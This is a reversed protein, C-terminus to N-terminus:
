AASRASKTRTIGRYGKLALFSVAGKVERFNWHNALVGGKNAGNLWNSWIACSGGSDLLVAQAAGAASLCDAVAKVTGYHHVILLDGTKSLGLAAHYGEPRRLSPDNLAEDIAACWTKWTAQAVVAPFQAALPGANRPSHRRPFNAYIEDLQQSKGAIFGFLHGLDYDLHAYRQEDFEGNVLLPPCAAWWRLKGAIELRLGRSINGLEDVNVDHCIAFRDGASTEYCILLTYAPDGIPEDKLYFLPPNQAVDSHSRLSNATLDGISFAFVLFDDPAVGSMGPLINWGDPLLEYHRSIPLNLATHQKSRQRTRANGEIHKQQYRGSGQRLDRSVSLVARLLHEASIRLIANPSAPADLGEGDAPAQNWSDLLPRRFELNFTIM